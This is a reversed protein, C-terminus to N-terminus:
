AHAQQGAGMGANIAPLSTAADADTNIRRMTRALLDQPPEEAPMLDLMNLVREASILREQDVRVETFGVGSQSRDLLLDIAAKDESRLSLSMGSGTDPRGPGMQAPRRISLIPREDNERM